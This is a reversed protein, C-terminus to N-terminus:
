LVKEWGIADGNLLPSSAMPGMGHMSAYYM